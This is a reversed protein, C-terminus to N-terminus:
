APGPVPEDGTFPKGPVQNRHRRSSLASLCLHFIQQTETRRQRFGSYNETLASETVGLERMRQELARKKEPSVPAISMSTVIPDLHLLICSPAPPPLQVRMTNGGSSKSDLAYAM